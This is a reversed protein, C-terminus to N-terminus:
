KRRSTGYVLLLGATALLTNGANTTGGAIPILVALTLTIGIYVLHTHERALEYSEQNDRTDQRGQSICVQKQKLEQWKFYLGITLTLAISMILMPTPIM